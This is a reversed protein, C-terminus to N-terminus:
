WTTLLRLPATEGAAATLDLRRRVVGSIETAPARVAPEM